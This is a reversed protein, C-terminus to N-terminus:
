LRNVVESSIMLVCAYQILVRRADRYFTTVVEDDVPRCCEFRASNQAPPVDLAEAFLGCSGVVKMKSRFATAWIM